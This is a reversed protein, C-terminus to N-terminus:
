LNTDFVHYATRFVRQSTVRVMKARSIERVLLSLIPQYFADVACREEVWLVRTAGQQFTPSDSITAVIRRSLSFSIFHLYAGAAASTHSSPGGAPHGEATARLDARGTSQRIFVIQVYRFIRLYALFSYSFSLTGHTACEVTQYLSYFRCDFQDVTSRASGTQARVLRRPFCFAGSKKGREWRSRSRSRTRARPRQKWRARSTARYIERWRSGHRRLIQFCLFVTM